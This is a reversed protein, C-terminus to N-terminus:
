RRELLRAGPESYLKIGDLLIENTLALNNELQDQNLLEVKKHLAERFTEIIEFFVIDKIDTYVLLDVDSRDKAYGKAYSGFLYLYKIGFDPRTGCIEVCTKKIFDLSLVGHEEDVYGYMALKDTMYEYKICKARAPNNEYNVYTRLPVGLYEACAKQSLGKEKRLEKLTSM